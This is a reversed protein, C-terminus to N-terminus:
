GQCLYRVPSSVRRRLFNLHIGDFVRYMAKIAECLTSRSLLLGIIRDRGTMAKFIGERAEPLGWVQQALDPRRM